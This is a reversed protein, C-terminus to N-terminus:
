WVTEFMSACQEKLLHYANRKNITKLLIKAKNVAEELSAPTNEWMEPNEIRYWLFFSKIEPPMKNKTIRRYLSIADFIYPMSLDPNWTISGEPNPDRDAHKFFNKAESMKNLYTKKFEPKVWDLGQQVVGRELKRFACIKDLVEHAARVLTHVSVPNNNEFFLEIATILQEEAANFKTIKELM